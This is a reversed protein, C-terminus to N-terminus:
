MVGIQVELALDSGLNVQWAFLYDILPELLSLGVLYLQFLSQFVPKLMFSRNVLLGWSLCYIRPSFLFAVFSPFRPILAFYFSFIWLWCAGQRLVNWFDTASFASESETM